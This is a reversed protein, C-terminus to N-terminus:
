RAEFESPIDDEEEVLLEAVNMVQASAPGSQIHPIIKSVAENEGQVLVILSGDSENKAWGRVSLDQAAQALYNRFGVNQVEGTLRYKVCVNGAPSGDALPSQITTENM